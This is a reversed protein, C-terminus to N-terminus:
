RLTQSSRLGLTLALFGAGQHEDADPHVFITFDPLDEWHDIIFNFYASQEERGSSYLPLAHCLQKQASSYLEYLLPELADRDFDPLVRAGSCTVLGM